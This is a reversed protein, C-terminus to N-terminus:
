GKGVLVESLRSLWSTRWGEVTLRESTPKIQRKAETVLDKPLDLQFTGTATDDFM